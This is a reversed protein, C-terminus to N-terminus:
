SQGKPPTLFPWVAVLMLLGGGTISALPGSWQALGAVFATFGVLFVIAHPNAAAGSGLAVLVARAGALWGRVRSVIVSSIRALTRSRM